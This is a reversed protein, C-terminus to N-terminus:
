TGHVPLTKDQAGSSFDKIVDSISIKDKYGGVMNDSINQLSGL